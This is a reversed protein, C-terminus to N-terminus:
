RLLLRGDAADRLSIEEQWIGDPLKVELVFPYGAARRGPRRSWWSVTTSKPWTSHAQGLLANWSNTPAVGPVTCPRSSRRSTTWPQM